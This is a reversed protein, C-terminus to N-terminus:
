HLLEFDLLRTRDTGVNYRICFNDLDSFYFLFRCVLINFNTLCVFFIWWWICCNSFILYLLEIMCTVESIVALIKVVYKHLEDFAIIILYCTHLPCASPCFNKITSPHLQCTLISFIASCMTLHLLPVFLKNLYEWQTLVTPKIFQRNRSSNLNYWYFIRLSQTSINQHNTNNILYKCTKCIQITQM